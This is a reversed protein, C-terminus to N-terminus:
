HDAFERKAAFKAIAVIAFVSYLASSALGYRVDNGNIKEDVRRRHRIRAALASSSSDRAYDRLSIYVCGDMHRDM